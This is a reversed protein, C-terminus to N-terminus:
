RKAAPRTPPNQELYASWDEAKEGMNVDTMDVLTARAQRRVNLDADGLGGLLTRVVETTPYHGLASAPPASTPPNM